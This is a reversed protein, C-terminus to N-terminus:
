TKDLHIHSQSGGCFLLGLWSWAFVFWTLSSFMDNTTEELLPFFCGFAKTEKEGIRLFEYCFISQNRAFPQLICFLHGQGHQWWGWGDWFHGFDLCLLFWLFLFSIGFLQHHGREFEKQWKPLNWLIPTSHSRHYCFQHPKKIYFAIKVQINDATYLSRKTIANRSTSFQKKQKM